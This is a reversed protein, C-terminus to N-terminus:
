MCDIFAASHASIAASQKGLMGVAILGYTYVYFLIVQWTFASVPQSIQTLECLSCCISHTYHELWSITNTICAPAIAHRGNWCPKRPVGVLDFSFQLLRQLWKGFMGPQRKLCLSGNHRRVAYVKRKKEKGLWHLILILTCAPVTARMVDLAAQTVYLSDGYEGNRHSISEFVQTSFIIYQRRCIAYKTFQVADWHDMSEFVVYQMNRIPYQTNRITIWQHCVHWIGDVSRSIVLLAVAFHHRAGAPTAAHM